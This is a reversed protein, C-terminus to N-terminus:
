KQWMGRRQKQAEEECALLDAAYKEDPWLAWATALGARVLEANVFTAGVYVYRLWRGYRDTESTDRELRVSKNLVLRANFAKAEAAFPEPQGDPGRREPTDIGIYRVRTGDALKLGDGDPVSIVRFESPPIKFESNRAHGSKPAPAIKAPAASVPESGAPTTNLISLVEDLKSLLATQGTVTANVSTLLANWDVRALLGQNLADANERAYLLHTLILSQKHILQLTRELAAAQKDLDRIRRAFVTQMRASSEQKGQRFLDAKQVELRAIHTELPACETALQRQITNFDIPNM